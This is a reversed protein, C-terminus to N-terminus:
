LSMSSENRRIGENDSDKTESVRRMEMDGDWEM